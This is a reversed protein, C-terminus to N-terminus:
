SVDCFFILHGALLYLTAHFSQASKFVEAFLALTRQDTFPSVATDLVCNRKVDKKRLGFGSPSAVDHNELGKRKPAEGCESTLTPRDLTGTLTQSLHYWVPINAAIHVLVTHKGIQLWKGLIDLM